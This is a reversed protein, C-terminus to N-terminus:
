FRRLESRMRGGRLFLKGLGPPIVGLGTLQGSVADDRDKLELIDVQSGEKSEGHLRRVKVVM